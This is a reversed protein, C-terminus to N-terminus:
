RAPCRYGPLDLCRGDIEAAPVTLGIMRALTPMIDVTMAPESREQRQIGKWWFIIPVQRDYEWPSGHTAVYTGTPSAIPTVQPKLLVVLDGSREPDFSARARQAPTWSEPSGSPLPMAALEAFGLVAEVQPHGALLEKTATQIVANRAPDSRDIYMDGFAGDGRIVEGNLGLRQAVAASLAKPNLAPDVRTAPPGQREPIDLGGHDATLVVAYNLGLRDLVAFFSGLDSDLTQLQLCMEAGGNGYRHGVLDTAALSIALLDTHGSKGLQLQQTLAAAMALTAADLEPSASFASADGAVRQYRNTGVTRQGVQIPKAKAECFPSPAIAPRAQALARAVSSNVQAAVPPQPADAHTVFRDRSWWWRHDPNHGGMMVASRDKGAVAVVRSRPNAAKMRDGLAPVKLHFPSVTYNDGSSGPVREDEACYIRKDERAANLNMWSNAIIGSRAPHAGTLITAHGPCTETAAQAQYGTAFVVGESLRKFGGTFHPRYQSFLPGSLQDVAIAVILDPRAPQQASAPLAAAAAAFFLIPTLLNM